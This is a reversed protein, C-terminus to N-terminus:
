RHPQIGVVRRIEQGGEEQRGGTGERLPHPPAQPRHASRRLLAQQLRGARHAPIAVHPGLVSIVRAYRALPGNNTVVSLRGRDEDIRVKEMQKPIDLQKKVVENDKTSRWMVEGFVGKVRGEIDEANGNFYGRFTTRDAWPQQDLFLMLGYIDDLKNKAVPTGTVAWRNVSTLRLAMMASKATPTSVRQAEDICVRWWEISTLPSPLIPYVKRKGGRGGRKGSAASYPNYDSHNLDDKLVEFTTLVIDHRALILPNSLLMDEGSSSSGAFKVGDYVGIELGRTHRKIEEVWQSSRAPLPKSYTSLLIPHLKPISIGSLCALPALFQTTLEDSREEGGRVQSTLPRPTIILTAGSKVKRGKREEAICTLCHASPVMKALKM